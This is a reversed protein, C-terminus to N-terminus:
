WARIYNRIQYRRLWWDRYSVMESRSDINKSEIFNKKAQIWATKITQKNIFDKLAHIDGKTTTSLSM